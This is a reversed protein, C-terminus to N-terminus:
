RSFVCWLFFPSTLLLHVQRALALGQTWLGTSDFFFFFGKFISYLKLLSVYEKNTLIPGSLYLVMIIIIKILFRNSRPQFRWNVLGFSKKYIEAGLRFIILFYWWRTEGHSGAVDVHWVLPLPFYSHFVKNRRHIGHGLFQNLWEDGMPWHYCWHWSIFPFSDM